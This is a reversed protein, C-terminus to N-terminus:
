VHSISLNQKWGACGPRASTKPVEGAVAKISKVEWTRTHRLKPFKLSKAGRFESGGVHARCDILCLFVCIM